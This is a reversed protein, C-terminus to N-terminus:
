GKKLRCGRGVMSSRTQELNPTTEPGVIPCLDTEGKRETFLVSMVRSLVMPYEMIMTGHIGNHQLQKVFDGFITADCSPWGGEGQIRQPFHLWVLIGCAVFLKASNHVKIPFGFWFLGLLKEAVLHGPELCFITSLPGEM